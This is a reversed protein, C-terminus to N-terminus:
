ALTDNQNSWPPGVHRLETVQYTLGFGARGAWDEFISKLSGDIMDM